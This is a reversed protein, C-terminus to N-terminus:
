KACNTSARIIQTGNWLMSIAINPMSVVYQVVLSRSPLLVFFFPVQRLSCKGDISFNVHWRKLDKTDISLFVSNSNEQKIHYKLLSIIGNMPIKVTFIPIVTSTSNVGLIFCNLWLVDTPNVV